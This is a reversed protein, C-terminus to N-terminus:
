ARGAPVQDKPRTAASASRRAVGVAIGGAVLGLVGLAIGVVALTRASSADDRAQREAARSTDLAANLRPVERDLRQALQGTTPDKVPFKVAAPDEVEAFGTKSSTFRQDVKQGKYTGTFHFTYRGPATPIFFARYDGPTGDGGVEFFPELALDLKEGPASEATVEVKTKDGPRLTFPHIGDAIEPFTTVCDRDAFTFITDLHM